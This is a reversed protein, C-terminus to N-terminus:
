RGEGWGEPRGLVDRTRLRLEIFPAQGWIRVFCSVVIHPRTVALRSTVQRNGRYADDCVAHPIYVHGLPYWSLASFAVIRHPPGTQSVADHQSGSDEDSVALSVTENELVRGCETERLGVADADTDCVADTVCVYVADAVSLAVCDCVALKLTDVETEGVVVKEGVDSVAERLGVADTATDCVADTVCVCVADAVSLAVCDCVAFKLTDDVAVKEGVYVRDCATDRLGVTDTDTDCVADAVCVRVRVADTGCVCVADAVSLAVCDCAALKLTVDVAVEESVYVCRRSQPDYTQWSGNWSLAPFAVIAHGSMGGKHSSAVHQSALTIHQECVHAVPNWSLVFLEM